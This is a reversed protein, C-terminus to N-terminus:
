FIANPSNQLDIDNSVDFRYNEERRMSLIERPGRLSQEADNTLLSFFNPFRSYLHGGVM